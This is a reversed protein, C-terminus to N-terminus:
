GGVQLDDVVWLRARNGSGNRQDFRIRIAKGTYASLDIQELVYGATNDNLNYSRIAKWANSGQTDQDMSDKPEGDPCYCESDITRITDKLRFSELARKRLGRHKGFRLWWPDMKRTVGAVICDHIFRM